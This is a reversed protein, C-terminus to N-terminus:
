PLPHPRIPLELGDVIRRAPDPELSQREPSAYHAREAEEWTAEGRYELLWVFTSEEESVWALPVEFGHSRRLPLVGDTWERVFDWLESDRIRYIRLQADM